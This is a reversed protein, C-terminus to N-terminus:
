MKKYHNNRRFITENPNIHNINGSLGTLFLTIFDKGYFSKLTKSLEGAYDACYENGGVVDLHCAFNVVAGLINGDMDEIKMVLVDPDIPGAPKDINPNLVGPNTKVSGDKMFYRRNFAINDVYGRGTGIKSPEM